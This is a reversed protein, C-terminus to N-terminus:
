STNSFSLPDNKNDVSVFKQASLRGKSKFKIGVSYLKNPYRELVFHKHTADMAPNRKNPYVEYDAGTEPWLCLASCEEILYDMCLEYARKGNFLDYPGILRSIYRDLFANITNEFFSLYRNDTRLLTKIKQKQPEFSPHNLWHDWRIIEICKQHREYYKKNRSLWLDGENLAHSYYFEPAKSTNLAMTYRQLTDYLMIKYERFCNNVLNTTLSFKDGEHYEQGVSITLLCASEPFKEVEQDSVYRFRCKTRCIKDIVQSGTMFGGKMLTDFYYGEWITPV